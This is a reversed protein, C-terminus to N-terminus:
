DRVEWRTIMVVTISVLATIAMPVFEGTAMFDATILDVALSALFRRTVYIWGLLYFLHDFASFVSAFGSDSCGFCVAM